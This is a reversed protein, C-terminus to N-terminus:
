ANVLIVASKVFVFTLKSEFNSWSYNIKQFNPKM